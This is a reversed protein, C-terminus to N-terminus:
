LIFQKSNCYFVNLFLISLRFGHLYVVHKKVHITKCRIFPTDYSKNLNCLMM